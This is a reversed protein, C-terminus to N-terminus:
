AKAGRGRGRGRGRGAALAAGRGGGGYQGLTKNLVKDKREEHKAKAQKSAEYEAREEPTMSSVKTLERMKEEDEKRKKEAKLHAFYAAKREEPTMNADAVFDTGVGDYAVEDKGGRAGAKAKKEPPPFEPKGAQLRQVRALLDAAEALGADRELATKLNEAAEDLKGARKALRGLGLPAEAYQAEKFASTVYLFSRHAAELRSEYTWGSSAHDDDETIPEGLAAKAAKAAAVERAEVDALREYVRACLLNAAASAANRGLLAVVLADAADLLEQSSMSDVAGVGSLVPDPFPTVDAATPAVVAVPPPALPPPPGAAAAGDSSVPPPPLLGAPPAAVAGAGAGAGAGDGAGDAAAGGDEEDGGPDDGGAAEDDGGGAGAGSGEDEAADDGSSTSSSTAKSSSAAASGGAGAGARYRDAEAEFYAKALALTSDDATEDADHVVRLPAIAEAHRGLACLVRGLAENVAKADLAPPNGDGKIAAAGDAAEAYEAAADGLKDQRELAQGLAFRAAPRSKPDAKLAAKLHTVAEDLRGEGLQLEGLAQHADANKSDLGLVMDYAGVALRAQGTMAFAKALLLITETDQMEYLAAAARLYGVATEADAKHQLLMRGSTKVALPFQPAIAAVECVADIVADVTEPTAETEDLLALVMRAGLDNPDAAYAAAARERVAQDTLRQRSQLAAVLGMYWSEYLLWSGCVISATGGPSAARGSFSISVSPGTPPQLPIPPVVETAKASGGAAAAAAGSGGGGGGGLAGQPRKGSRLRDLRLAFRLAQLWGEREEPSATRLEREPQGGDPWSLLVSLDNDPHAGVVAGSLNFFGKPALDCPNVFYLLITRQLVFWRRQWNKRGGNAGGFKDLFGCKADTPGDV